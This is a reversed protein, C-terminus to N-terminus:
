LSVRTRDALTGCRPSDPFVLFHRPSIASCSYSYTIQFNDPNIFLAVQEQYRAASTWLTFGDELEIELIDDDEIDDVIRPPASKAIARAPPSLDFAHVVEIDRLLDTTAPAELAGRLRMRFPELAEDRGPIILKITM